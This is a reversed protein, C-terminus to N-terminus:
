CEQAEKNNFNPSQLICQKIKEKDKKSLDTFFIAINQYATDAEKMIVPESRVVVGNCKVKETNLKNRRYIPLLLILSIKSMLPLPKDIRCYVGSCSINRTETIVDLGKKSIKLPLITQTRQYKRRELVARSM